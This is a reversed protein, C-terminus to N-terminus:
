GIPVGVEADIVEIPTGGLAKRLETPTGALIPFTGYHIPLVTEVGLLTIAKAAHEPGMTFHGGIPLMALDIDWMEGILEMDGFLGTDGAHYLTPGDPLELIWGAAEGGPVIGQDGSIGSSHSAEVLTGVIGGPGEVAGGKNSGVANDAGNNELHVSIEHIAFVQPQHAEVLAMTDGFHDFHGHTIYISDVREPSQHEEPNTPNTLWPDIFAATGDALELRIAAHGLWTLSAGNLDM